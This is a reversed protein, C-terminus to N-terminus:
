ESLVWNWVDINRRSIEVLSDTIDNLRSSFVYCQRKGALWVAAQQEDLYSFYEDILAQKEDGEAASIKAQYDEYTTDTLALVTVSATTYIDNRAMPDSTIGYVVLGADYTGDVGSKLDSMMTAADITVLEVEFGAAELYQGILVAMEARQGANPAALVFKGDFGDAKAENLLETAKEVDYQSTIGDPYSANDETIYLQMPEGITSFYDGTLFSAITDRDIAYNIAQRVRADTIISNNIAMVYTYVLNDTLTFTLNEAGTMNQMAIAEDNGVPTYVVDVEGTLLASSLATSDTQKIILTNWNADGQYYGDYRALTLETGDASLSVFSAPGSGVPASWYDWSEINAVDEGELLHKPLVSLFYSSSKLFSDLDTAAKFTITLTYDGDAAVAISNESTEVGAEDTGDIVALLSQDTFFSGVGDKSLLQLSFVYDEATIPTGDHFTANQNLQFTATLGDDSISWSDAGRPSVSGDSNVYVLKDYLLSIVLSSYYDGNTFPALNGWSSILGLVLTDNIEAAPEEADTEGSTSGTAESSAASTDGSTAASSGSQTSSGCGTLVLSFVMALALLLSVTKKM